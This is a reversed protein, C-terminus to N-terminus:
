LGLASPPRRRRTSYAEVMGDIMPVFVQTESLAPGAGPAGRLRRQWRVSGGVRDLVYLMSGNVVAVYEENAAAESTLLRATRSADGM